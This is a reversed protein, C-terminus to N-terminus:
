LEFNKSLIFLLFKKDGNFAFEILIKMDIALAENYIFNDDYIQQNLSHISYRHNLM